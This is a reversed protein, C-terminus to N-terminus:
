FNDEPNGNLYGYNKESHKSKFAGSIASCLFVGIGFIILVSYSLVKSGIYRASNGVATGVLKGANDFHVINNDIIKDM